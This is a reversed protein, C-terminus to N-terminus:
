RQGAQKKLKRMKKQAKEQENKKNLQQAIAAYHEWIEYEDSVQQVSEQIANWAKQIHGQKFYVWALSDLFYGNGPEKKVARQILALARNLNQNKETLTYGLFNLASAHNPDILIIKEMRKIAENIKKQQHLASGLSFLIDTHGPWKKEAKLLTTLAKDSENTKTYLDALVLPFMPNEPYLEKGKRCIAGAQQWDKKETLVHIQFLLVSPYNPADQPVKRLFSLAKNPDKELNAALIAQIYLAGQETVDQPFQKMVTQAHELFDHEVFAAAAQLLADREQGPMNAFYLARDPDNLKLNLVILRALLEKKHENNELLRTYIKEAEAYERQSEYFLALEVWAMSNKPDYRTAQKLHKEAMVTHGLGAAAKGLLLWSRSVRKQPLATALLDIVQAFANQALLFAAIDDRAAIDDPVHSLYSLLTTQADALRKELLYHRVLSLNLVRDQPYKNVGAKLTERVAVPQKKQWLLAAKELYLEPAPELALLQDLTALAAQPNKAKQETFALFLYTQKAHPSLPPPTKQLTSGCGSSSLSLLFCLLFLKLYQTISPVRM